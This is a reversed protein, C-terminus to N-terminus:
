TSIANKVDDTMQILNVQMQINYLHKCYKLKYM